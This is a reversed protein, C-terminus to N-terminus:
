IALVGCLRGFGEEAPNAPWAKVHPSRVRITLRSSTGGWKGRTM